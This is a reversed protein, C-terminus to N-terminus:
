TKVLNHSLSLQVVRGYDGNIEIASMYVCVCVCVSVCVCVCLSLSLSQELECNWGSTDSVTKPHGWEGGVQDSCGAVVGRRQGAGM